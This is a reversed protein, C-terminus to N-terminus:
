MWWKLFDLAFTFNKDTCTSTSLNAGMNPLKHRFTLISQWILDLTISSKLSALPRPQPVMVMWESKVAQCSQQRSQLPNNSFYRLLYVLILGNKKSFKVHSNSDKHFKLKNWACQTLVCIPANQLRIQWSSVKHEHITTRLWQPTNGCRVEETKNEGRMLSCMCFLNYNHDRNSYLPIRCFM